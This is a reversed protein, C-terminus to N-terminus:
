AIEKIYTYTSIIDCIINNNENIIIISFLLINCTCYLRTLVCVKLVFEQEAFGNEVMM